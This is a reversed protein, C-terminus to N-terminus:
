DNINVEYNMMANYLNQPIEDIYRNAVEKIYNEKYTKYKLFANEVCLFRGLKVQKGTYVNNCYAIYRNTQKELM